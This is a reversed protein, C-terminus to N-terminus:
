MGQQATVLSGTHITVTSVALWLFVRSRETVSTHRWFGKRKMEAIECERECVAKWIEAVFFSM